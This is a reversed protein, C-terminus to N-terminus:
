RRCMLVAGFGYIPSFPGFLMGARDQYHGPDVVVMHYVTEILLGLVCCVVFVWFLNFFNLEIYGKGEPDRGLTGDEAAERDQMSRLRRQLAREERLSPDMTVSLALLIVLQVAPAILHEGLGQLRIDLLIRVITLVILLYSWRAAHRRRNRLLMIGFAVLCVANVVIVIFSLVSVITTLTIDGVAVLDPREFVAWIVLGMFLLAVPVTIIGDILCLVGYVKAVLPTKKRDAPLPKDPDFQNGAPDYIGDPKEVDLSM